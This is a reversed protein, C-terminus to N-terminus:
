EEEIGQNNNTEKKTYLSNKQLYYGMLYTEKLPKDIEGNDLISIKEMISGILQEYYIKTGESLRPYYGTKLGTMIQSFATLPRQVYFAQARIANTERSEDKYTDNEIKELVALLRGFQYSRDPLNEDLAMKWEEKYNDYRFKKIVACTIFLLRDANNGKYVQLNSAKVVLNRMIDVPFLAKDIRCSVLRQMHQSILKEDCEVKGNDRQTGFAYKIIEYIAPSQVGWRNDNWCCTTDWYYLRELFDSRQLENYYAVSLRGSTAAEFSAIVVTDQEPLNSKYGNLVLQLQKKYDSPEVKDPLKSLIPLNFEPIKRGQPNWCVIRREGMSVGNNSLLWKLANHAKQSAMYGMSMAEGGDVFRGRYTFGDNDNSSILKANGSFSSVGKLHQEALCEKKGTVMCVGEAFKKNNLYYDLYLRMLQHDEHVAGSNEGLGEVRWTVIDDKEKIKGKNDIKLVNSKECDKLVTNKILYSYIADIKPNSFKSEKWSKVEDLYVSHKENDIEAVYELKDCLPHAVPSNSRGSSKETCPIPIKESIKRARVFNGDADITIELKAETIMYGVPALTEKNEVKVGALSEMADYTEIAKQFLGM